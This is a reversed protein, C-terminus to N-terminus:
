CDIEAYLDSYMTATCYREIPRLDSGRCGLEGIKEYKESFYAECKREIVRFKSGRCEVDGYNDGYRYVECKRSIESLTFKEDDIFFERSAASVRAAMVRTRQQEAEEPSMASCKGGVKKFGTNCYWQSGQVFSNEPNIVKECKGGVKKFGTNCYWQSGQVFSNEPNIVKECKGGVKKFGTNCYWQSGQVFSNEPNIAHVQSVM